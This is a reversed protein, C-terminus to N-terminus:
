YFLVVSDNGEQYNIGNAGSINSIQIEDYTNEEAIRQELQGTTTYLNSRGASGTYFKNYVIGYCYYLQSLAVVVESFALLVLISHLATIAGGVTPNSVISLNPNYSAASAIEIAFMMIGFITSAMAGFMARNIQTFEPQGGALIGLVGSGIFFVSCWIGSGTDLINFNNQSDLGLAISAFLISLFGILIQSWGTLNYYKSYKRGIRPNIVSQPLYIQPQGEEM